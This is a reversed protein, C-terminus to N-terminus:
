RQEHGGVYKPVSDTDLGNGFPECGASDTLSLFMQVLGDSQILIPRGGSCKNSMQESYGIPRFTPCLFSSIGLGARLRSRFPASFRDMACNQDASSGFITLISVDCRRGRAHHLRNNDQLSRPRPCIRTISWRIGVGSRSQPEKRIISIM